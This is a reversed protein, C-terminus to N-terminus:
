EDPVCIQAMGGAAICGVARYDAKRGSVTFQCYFDEGVEAARAFSAAGSGGALTQKITAETARNAANKIQIQVTREGASVNLVRCQFTNSGGVLLHSTFLDAAEIVASLALSLGVAAGTAVSRRM